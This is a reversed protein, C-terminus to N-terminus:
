FRQPLKNMRYLSVSMGPSAVVVSHEYGNAAVYETDCATLVSGSGGFEAADSNLLPILECPM